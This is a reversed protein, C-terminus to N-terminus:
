QIISYNQIINEMKSGNTGQSKSGIYKKKDSGEVLQSLLYKEQQKLDDEYGEEMGKRQIGELIYTM